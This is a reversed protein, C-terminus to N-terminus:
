VGKEMKVKKGWLMKLTSIEIALVCIGNGTLGFHWSADLMHPWVWFDPPCEAPLARKNFIHIFFGYNHNWIEQM